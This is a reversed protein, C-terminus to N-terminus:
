CSTNKQPPIYPDKLVDKMNIKNEKLFNIIDEMRTFNVGDVMTKNLEFGNAHIVVLHHVIKAPMTKVCIVFQLASKTRILFTGIPCPELLMEAAERTINGVCYPPEEDDKDDVDAPINAYISTPQQMKQAPPPQLPTTSSSFNSEAFDVNNTNYNIANANGNVLSLGHHSNKPNYSDGIRFSGRITTGKDLAEINRQREDKDRKKGIVVLIIAAIVLGIVVLVILVVIGLNSSSSSGGGVVSVRFSSSSAAAAFDSTAAVVENNSDFCIVDVVVVLANVSGDANLENVANLVYCSPTAISEYQQKLYVRAENADTSSTTSVRVKSIQDLAPYMVNLQAEEGTAFYGNGDVKVCVAGGPIVLADELTSDANDQTVCVVEGMDVVKAMGSSSFPTALLDHFSVDMTSPYSSTQQWSFTNEPRDLVTLVASKPAAVNGSSDTATYRFVIHRDGRINLDGESYRVTVNESGDYNDVGVLAIFEEPISEGRNIISNNPYDFTPPELDVVDVVRTLIVSPNGANDMTSFTIDKRGLVDSSIGSPSPPSTMLNNRLDNVSCVGDDSLTVGADTYQQEYMVQVFSEGELYITPAVDDITQVSRNVSTSLGSADRVSYTVDFVENVSTGEISALLNEMSPSVTVVLDPKSTIVDSYSISNNVDYIADLNIDHLRVRVTPKGILQVSPPTADILLVIRTANVFAGGGDVASYVLVVEEGVARNQIKQQLVPANAVHVVLPVGEDDAFVGPDRWYVIGNVGVDVPLFEGGEIQITPPKNMCSIDSNDKISYQKYGDLCTCVYSGISNSCTANTNCLTPNSQCEDVDVCTMTDNFAYGTECECTYSGLTNTCVQLNGMCMTDCENVDGCTDPDTIMYGSECACMYSGDTNTCVTNSSTCTTQCEDVDDCDYGHGVASSFGSNCECMNTNTNCTATTAGCDNNTTCTVTFEFTVMSDVTAHAVNTYKGTGSCTFSSSTTSFSCSSPAIEVSALDNPHSSGENDANYKWDAFFGNISSAFPFNTYVLHVVNDDWNASSTPDKNGPMEYQTGGFNLVPKTRYSFAGGGLNGEFRFTPDIQKKTSSSQLADFVFDSPTWAGTMQTITLTGQKQAVVPMVVVVMSVFTAALVFAHFQRM